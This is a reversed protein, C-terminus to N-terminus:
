QVISRIVLWNLDISRAKLNKGTYIRVKFCCFFEVKRDMRSLKLRSAFFEIKASKRFNTSRFYEEELKQVHHLCNLIGNRFKVYVLRTAPPQVFYMGSTQQFLGNLVKTVSCYSSHIALTSWCYVSAPLKFGGELLFITCHIRAAQPFRKQVNMELENLDHPKFRLM